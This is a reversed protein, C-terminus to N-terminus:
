GTANTCMYASVRDKAKMGKTGRALMRNEWNALYTRNPLLRFFIGTEDVNFINDLKYDKCAERIKEVGEAIAADDVSGAEGHLVTSAMGNRAIFNKAWRDSATFGGLRKKEGDTTSGAALFKKKITVGFSMITARTVPLRAKRAEEVFELVAKDVKPFDGGKSSKSSASRSSAAEDALLTARNKKITGIATTGCSFRRAIESHAVKKDLLKLVELKQGFNLRTRPQQAAAARTTKKRAGPALFGG